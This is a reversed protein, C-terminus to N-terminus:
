FANTAEGVGVLLNATAHLTNAQVGKMTQQKCFATDHVALKCNIRLMAGPPHLGHFALPHAATVHCGFGNSTM